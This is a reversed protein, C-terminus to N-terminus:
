SSPIQNVGYICVYKSMLGQTEVLGGLAEIISQAIVLGGEDNYKRISDAPSSHTTLCTYHSPSFSPPSINHHENRGQRDPRKAEAM